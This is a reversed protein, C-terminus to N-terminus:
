FCFKSEDDDSCYMHEYYENEYYDQADDRYEKLLDIAKTFGKKDCEPVDELEQELHYICANIRKIEIFSVM